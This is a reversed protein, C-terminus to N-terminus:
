NKELPKEEHSLAPNIACSEGELPELFEPSPPVSRPFFNREMISSEQFLSELDESTLQSDPFQM